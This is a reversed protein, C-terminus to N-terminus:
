DVHPKIQQINICDIINANRLYSVTGNTNVQTITFPDSTREELAGPEKIIICM